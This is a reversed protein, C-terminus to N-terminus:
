APITPARTDILVRGCYPRRRFPLDTTSAFADVDGGAKGVGLARGYVGSVSPPLVAHLSSSIVDRCHPLQWLLSIKHTSIRLKTLIDFAIM